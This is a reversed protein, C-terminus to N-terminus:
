LTIILWIIFVAHALVFTSYIIAIHEKAFIGFLKTYKSEPFHYKKNYAFLRNLTTLCVIVSGITIIVFLSTFLSM